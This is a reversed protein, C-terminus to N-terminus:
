KELAKITSRLKNREALWRMKVAVARAAAGERASVVQEQRLVAPILSSLEEAYIGTSVRAVISGNEVTVVQSSAVNELHVSELETRMREWNGRTPMRKRYYRWANCAVLYTKDRRMLVRPYGPLDVTVYEEETALYLKGTRGDVFSIGNEDSIPSWPEDIETVIERGDTLCAIRGQRQKSFNAVSGIIKGDCVCAGTISGGEGLDVSTVLRCEWHPADPTVRFVDSGAVVGLEGALPFLLSARALKPIYHAVAFEAEVDIEAIRTEWSADQVIAFIKGGVEVQCGIARFKYSDIFSFWKIRDFNRDVFGSLFRGDLDVNDCSFYYGEM